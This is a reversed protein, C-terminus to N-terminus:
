PVNPDKDDGAASKSSSMGPISIDKRNDGYM